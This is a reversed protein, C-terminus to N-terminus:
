GVAATLGLFEGYKQVAAAVAQKNAKGLSVMPSITVTVGDRSLARKWSAVAKCDIVVTPGLLLSNWQSPKDTYRPHLAAARDQYGVFYEDYSPLLFAAAIPVDAGQEPPGLWYSKGDIVQEVLQWRAVELGARADAAALGSWWAFDSVTAPGHSLFYRRAFEGLAEERELTEGPPVWEDVLTFTAQRGRRPGYCILGDAQARQLLLSFRTGEAHIKARELEGRLEERTCHRGGELARVLVDNSRVFTAADLGLRNYRSVNDVIDRMRPAMLGVMWRLDSAAVFHLTGRMFWTRVVTGDAIAQEVSRETANALRLGIAWLSGSYDQAQVAGLWRVLDAPKKIRSRGIHQNHFRWRAISESTM